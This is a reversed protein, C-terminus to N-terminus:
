EYLLCIQFMETGFRLKLLLGEGQSSLPLYLLLFFFWSIPLLHLVSLFRYTKTSSSYLQMVTGLPLSYTLPLIVSQPVSPKHRASLLIDCHKPLFAFAQATTATFIGFQILIPLQSPKPLVIGVYCVTITLSM